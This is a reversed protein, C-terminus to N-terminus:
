KVQDDVKIDFQVNGGDVSTVKATVGLKDSGATLECRISQGVEAPLDDPCTVADPKQGVQKELEQSIQNATEEKDVSAQGCGTAGGMIALATVAILVGRGQQKLM